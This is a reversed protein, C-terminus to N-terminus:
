RFYYIKSYTNFEEFISPIIYLLDNYSKKHYNDRSLSNM